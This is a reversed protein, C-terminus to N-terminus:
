GVDRSFVLLVKGSFRSTHPFMMLETVSSAPSFCVEKLRWSEFPDYQAGAEKIRLEPLQMM